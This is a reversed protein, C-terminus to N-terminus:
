IFCTYSRFFVLYIAQCRMDYLKKFFLFLPFFSLFVYFLVSPQIPVPNLIFSTFLSQVDRTTM